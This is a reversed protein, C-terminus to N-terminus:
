MYVSVLHLLSFVACARQELCSHLAVLSLSIYPGLRTVSTTSQDTVALTIDPTTYFSHHPLSHWTKQSRTVLLSAYRLTSSFTFCSPSSTQLNSVDNNIGLRGPANKRNEGAAKDEILVVSMRRKAVNQREENQIIQHLSIYRTRIHGFGKKQESQLSLIIRTSSSLLLRWTSFSGRDLVFRAEARPERDGQSPSYRKM